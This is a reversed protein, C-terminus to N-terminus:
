VTQLGIHSSEFEKRTRKKLVTPTAVIMEDITREKVGENEFSPETYPMLPTGFSTKPLNGSDEFDATEMELRLFGLSGALRLDDQRGLGQCIFNRFRPLAVQDTQDNARATEAHM